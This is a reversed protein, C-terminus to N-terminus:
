HLRAGPWARLLCTSTATPLHGARDSVWVGPGTHLHLARSGLPSIAQFSHPGWSIEEVGQFIGAPLPNGTPQGWRDPQCVSLSADVWQGCRHGLSACGKPWSLPLSKIWHVAIRTEPLTFGGMVKCTVCQLSSPKRLCGWGCGHSGGRLVDM